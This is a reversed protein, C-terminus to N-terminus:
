APAPRASLTGPDDRLPNPLRTSCFAALLCGFCRPLSLGALHLTTRPQPAPAEADEAPGEQPAPGPRDAPPAGNSLGIRRSFYELEGWLRDLFANGDFNLAECDARLRDEMARMIRFLEDRMGLLAQRRAPDMRPVNRRLYHEAFAQHRSEDVLIKASMRGFLGERQADAFWQYFLKAFLDSILIGWVWDVRDGTRLRHHYRLMEPLERLGVPHHELRKYLRTLAEFHRAEDMIFSALYLQATTEGAEMLQPLINAAGAMATQEGLYVPTLMRALARNQRPTMQLSQGWDLDRSTWQVKAAKHFLNVLLDDELDPFIRVVSRIGSTRRPTPRESVIHEGCCSMAGAAPPPRSHELANYAIGM